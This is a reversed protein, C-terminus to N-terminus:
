EIPLGNFDYLNKLHDPINWEIRQDPIHDPPSTDGRWAIGVMQQTHYIKTHWGIERLYLFGRAVDPFVLDHFMIMATEEAYKACCKSDNLPYDNNHNGDIFIFAWRKNERNAM